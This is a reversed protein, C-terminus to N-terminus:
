RVAPVSLVPCPASRVVQETMSGLIKKAFTDPGKTAMIILDINQQRATDVIEMAAPKSSLTQDWSLGELFSASIFPFSNGCHLGTIRPSSGPFIKLLRHLFSFARDPSPSSAIPLLIKRLLIEGTEPDVFPRAADPVYLTTKRFHAALYEIIDPGFLHLIPSQSKTGLVIIDFNKEEMKKSLEKKENGHKMVKTVKLGIKQVDGRHSGQPLLRWKELFARVGLDDEDHGRFDVIELEGHSALALKLAHVFPISANACEHVPHIVKLSYNLPARDTEPM